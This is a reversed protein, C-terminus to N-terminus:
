YQSIKWDGENLNNMLFISRLSQWKEWTNDIVLTAKKRNLLNVDKKRPKFNKYANFLQDIFKKMDPVKSLNFTVLIREGANNMFITEKLAKYRKM